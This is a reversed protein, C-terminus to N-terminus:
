EGDEELEERLGDLIQQATGVELVDLERQARAIAQIVDEKSM